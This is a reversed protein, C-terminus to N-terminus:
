SRYKRTAEELYKLDLLEKYKRKEQLQTQLIKDVIYLIRNKLEDKNLFISINGIRDNLKEDSLAAEFYCTKGNFLYRTYSFDFDNGVIRIGLSPIMSPTHFNPELYIRNSCNNIEDVPKGFFDQLEQNIEMQIYNINNAFEDLIKKLKNNQENVIEKEALFDTVVEKLSIKNLEGM